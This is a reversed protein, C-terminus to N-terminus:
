KKNGSVQYSGVKLMNMMIQLQDDVYPRDKEPCSEIFDYLQNFVKKMTTKNMTAESPNNICVM